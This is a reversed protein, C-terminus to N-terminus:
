LLKYNSWPWSGPQVDCRLVVAPAQVAGQSVQAGEQLGHAAQGLVESPVHEGRAEAIGECHHLSQDFDSQISRLYFQVVNFSSHWWYQLRIENIYFTESGQELANQLKLNSVYLFLRM